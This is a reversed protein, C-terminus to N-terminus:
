ADSSQLWRSLDRGLIGELREIDSRYFEALGERVVAPMDPRALNAEEIAGRIRARMRQPLVAKIIDKVRGQRRVAKQLALSRPIGAPNAHLPRTDPFADVELFRAIAELVTNQDQIFEDFLFIRLQDARFIRLYRELQEGYLGMSRYQWFPSWGALSRETEHELASKFTPLPERGEWRHELYNSYAREVPNRLLAILKMDPVHRAINIPAKKSHLYLTSAEGIARAEGADDFLREYDDITRVGQLEGPGRFPEKVGELAFFFPEKNPSMYIDPHGQLLRYLTTTGARPAGIVLFNPLM